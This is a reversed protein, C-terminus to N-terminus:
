NYSGYQNNLHSLFAGVSVKEVFSSWFLSYIVVHQISHTLLSCQFAASSHCLTVEKSAHLSLAMSCGAQGSDAQLRPSGGMECFLYTLSGWHDVNAYRVGAIKAM